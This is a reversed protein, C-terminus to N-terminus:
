AHAVFRGINFNAACKHGQSQESAAKIWSVCNEASLANEWPLRIQSLMHHVSCCCRGKPPKGIMIRIMM